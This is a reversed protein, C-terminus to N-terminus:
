SKEDNLSRGVVQDRYQRWRTLSDVATAPDFIGADSDPDFARLKLRDLLDAIFGIAGDGGQVHCAFTTLPVDNGIGFEVSFDPCNARV